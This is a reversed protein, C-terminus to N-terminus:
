PPVAEIYQALTCVRKCCKNGVVVDCAWTEGDWVYRFEEDGHMHKNSADEMTASFTPCAESWAEGRRHFSECAM